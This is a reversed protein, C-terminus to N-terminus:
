PWKVKLPGKWVHAPDNETAARVTVRHGRLVLVNQGLLQETIDKAKKWESDWAHYHYTADSIVTGEVGRQIWIGVLSAREEVDQVREVPVATHCVGTAGVAPGLGFELLYRQEPTAVLYHGIEHAIDTVTDTPCVYIRGAGTWCWRPCSKTLVLTLGLNRCIQRYAALQRSTYNM